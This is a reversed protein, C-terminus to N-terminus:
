GEKKMKEKSTEERIKENSCLGAANRPQIDYFTVLGPKRKQTITSTCKKQNTFAHKQQTINLKKRVLGLSQSPSVDGVHGTRDPPVYFVV